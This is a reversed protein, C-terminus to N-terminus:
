TFTNPNAFSHKLINPNPGYFIRKGLFANTPKWTLTKSPTKNAAKRNNTTKNSTKALMQSVSLLM